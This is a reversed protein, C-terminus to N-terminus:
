SDGAPETLNLRCLESAATIVTCTPTLNPRPRRYEKAGLDFLGGPELNRQCTSPRPDFLRAVPGTPFALHVSVSSSEAPFTGHRLAM